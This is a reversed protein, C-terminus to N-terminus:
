CLFLKGRDLIPFVKRRMVTPSLLPVSTDAPDAMVREVWEGYNRVVFKSFERDAEAIQMALMEDM